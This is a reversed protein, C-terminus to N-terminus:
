RRVARRRRNNVFGIDDSKRGVIDTGIQPKNAFSFSNLSLPQHIPHRPGSPRRYASSGSQLEEAHPGQQDQREAHGRLAPLWSFKHPSHNTSLLTSPNNIRPTSTISKSAPPFTINNTYPRQTSSHLSPITQNTFHPSAIIQNNHAPNRHRFREQLSSSSEPTLFPPQSTRANASIGVRRLPSTYKFASPTSPPLTLRNTPLGSSRRGLFSSYLVKDLEGDNDREGISRSLTSHARSPMLRPNSGTATEGLVPSSIHSGTTGENYPKSLYPLPRHADLTETSHSEPGRSQSSSWLRSQLPHDKPPHRSPPPMADRSALRQQLNHLNSAHQHYIEHNDTTGLRRRKPSPENNNQGARATLPSDWSEQLKVGDQISKLDIASGRALLSGAPVNKKAQPVQIDEIDANSPPDKPFVADVRLSTAQQLADDIYSVDGGLEYLQGRASQLASWLFTLSMMVESNTPVYRNLPEMAALCAVISAERDKWTYLERQLIGFKEYLGSAFRVLSIYQFRLAENGSKGLQPPTVEFYEAPINNDYEGKGTGRIAYLIKDEYDQKNRVCFPCPAKPPQDKPHFPVGGGELHKACTVHACETLWLKTIAGNTNDTGQHLGEEEPYGEERDADMIYKRGGQPSTRSGGTPFPPLGNPGLVSTMSTKEQKFLAALGREQGAEQVQILQKAGADGIQLVDDKPKAKSGVTLLGVVDAQKVVSLRPYSRRIDRRFYPNEAIDGAPVTVPDDYVGPPNAGPPPNRYQPNLPIGSSRNPDVALARRIRDWIGTTRVTYKQGEILTRGESSRIVQEGKLVRQCNKWIPAAQGSRQGCKDGHKLGWSIALSPFVTENSTVSCEGLHLNSEIYISPYLGATESLVDADIQAGDLKEATDAVEAAVDARNGDTDGESALKSEAKDGEDKQTEEAQVANGVSESSQVGSSQVLKRVVEVTAAPGGPEVAEVRGDKSVVFVGRVIGKPAKRMGIATILTANPDCLLTYQLKQKTKFTTNSKPSDSSLGFISYGTATLPSFEDRFLCAQTTCGPTSAKPYTFLVVGSESEDVLKKLNTKEGDQTEVEGGFGELQITDGVALSKAKEAGNTSSTAAKSSESEPKASTPPNSKKQPPQSADSPAERRKRLEVM